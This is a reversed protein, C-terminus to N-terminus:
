NSGLNLIHGFLKKFMKFDRPHVVAKWNISVRSGRIRNRPKGLWKAYSLQSEYESDQKIEFFIELFEERSYLGWMPHDCKGHAIVQDVLRQFCILTQALRHPALRLHPDHLSKGCSPCYRLALNRNATKLIESNRFGLQIKNFCNPCKGSLPAHHRECIITTAFHWHLRIFPIEDESLCQTCYRYRPTNGDYTTLILFHSTKLKSVRRTLRSTLLPAPVATLASIKRMEEKTLFFDLQQAEFVMGAFKCVTNPSWGYRAAIRYIWSSVAEGKIKPPCRYIRPTPPAAQIECHPVSWGLWAPKNDTYPSTDPNAEM